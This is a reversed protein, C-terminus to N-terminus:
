HCLGPPVSTQCLNPELVNGTGAGDWFIDTSNQQIINGRVTNNIPPTGGDGTLVAVGASAFTDGGPVNGKIINGSLSVDHAGLIVLGLGSLAPNNEEPNAACAKNNQNLSNAQVSFAGDPGPADALFLVGLCNGHADNSALRGHEADRIFFGFYNGVATNGSLSANAQPSDGIYFGAENSNSAVNATETTGTSDFAAIGYEGNGIARNSAFNSGSGAFQVIGSGDFGQVTLGTIHVNQVYSNVTVNGQDDATFNGAICVGDDNPAGFSCPSPPAEGSPPVLTAGSALLNLSKTIVLHEAHVGGTVVVTGGPGVADIAAQISGNPGVIQTAASASTAGLAM